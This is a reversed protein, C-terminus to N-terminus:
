VRQVPLVKICNVRENHQLNGAVASFLFRGGESFIRQRGVSNMHKMLLDMACCYSISPRFRSCRKVPRRPSRRRVVLFQDRMHKSGIQNREAVNDGIDWVVNIDHRETCKSVQGIEELWRAVPPLVFSWIFQVSVRRIESCIIWAFFFM